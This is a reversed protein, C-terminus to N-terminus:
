SNKEFQCGINVVFLFEVGFLQPKLNINYQKVHLVRRSHSPIVRIQTCFYSCKNMQVLM